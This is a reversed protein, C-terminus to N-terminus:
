QKLYRRGPFDSKPLCAPFCCLKRHLRNKEFLKFYSLYLKTVSSIRKHRVDHRRFAPTCNIARRRRRQRAPHKQFTSVLNYNSTLVLMSFFARLFVGCDAVQIPLDVTKSSRRSSLRTTKPRVPQLKTPIAAIFIDVCSM